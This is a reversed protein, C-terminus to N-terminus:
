PFSNLPGAACARGAWESLSGLLINLGILLCSVHLNLNTNTGIAACKAYLHFHTNKSIVTNDRKCWDCCDRLYAVPFSSRQGQHFHNCYWKHHRHYCFLNPIFVESSDQRLGPRWFGSGCSHDKHFKKWPMQPTKLVAPMLVLTIWWGNTHRKAWPLLFSDLLQWHTLNDM